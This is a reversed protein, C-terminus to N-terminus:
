RQAVTKGDSLYVGASTTSSIPLSTAGYSITFTEPSIITLRAGDFVLSAGYPVATTGVRLVTSVRYRSEVAPLGGAFSAKTGSLIVADIRRRWPPLAGGLARLISADPGTNILVLMNGPTRVLAASGKGVNLVSVELARPALLARYISINAAVLIAICIFLFWGSRFVQM